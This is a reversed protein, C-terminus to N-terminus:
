KSKFTSSPMVARELAEIDIEPKNQMLALRRAIVSRKFFSADGTETKYEKFLQRPTLGDARLPAVRARKKPPLSEDESSWDDELSRKGERNIERLVAPKRPTGNHACGEPYQDKYFDTPSEHRFGEEISKQANEQTLEQLPM